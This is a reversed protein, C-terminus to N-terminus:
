QVLTGEPTSVVQYIAHEAGSFADIYLLYEDEGDKARIEYALKEETNVPILALRAGTKELAPDVLSLAQAETLTPESWERPEHNRYYGTLEVGIVEGDTMSIQAKILDTYLAIEGETPVFTATVVGNLVREDSPEVNGFGRSELFARANALCTQVDMIKRFDGSEPLMYLVRGGDVSVGASIRVGKKTLTFEYCPTDGRTQGTYAVSDAEGGLFARLSREAEEATARAGPQIQGGQRKADSFPGDYLLVPYETGPSTLPSASEEDDFSFEYDRFKLEGENYRTLMENLRVAFSTASETLTAIQARDDADFARGDAIRRMLSQAYDGTQNVFKITASLAHVSMPLMSLNSEAGQSQKAIDSLLELRKRSNGAVSLKKLNSQVGSVLECTEYFARQYVANLKIRDDRATESAAGYMVLAAALLLALATTLSKWTRESFIQKRM